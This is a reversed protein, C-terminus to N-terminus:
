EAAEDFDLFGGSQRARYRAVLAAGGAANRGVGDGKRGLREIRWESM